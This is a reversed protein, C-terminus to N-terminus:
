RMKGHRSEQHVQELRKQHGRRQQAWHKKWQEEDWNEEKPRTHCPCAESTGVIIEKENGDEKKNREM